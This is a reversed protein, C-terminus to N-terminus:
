AEIGGLTAGLNALADVRLRGQWAKAEVTVRLAGGLDLIRELRAMSLLYLSSSCGFAAIPLAM